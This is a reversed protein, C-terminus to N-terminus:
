FQISVLNRYLVPEMSEDQSDCSCTLILLCSLVFFVGRM